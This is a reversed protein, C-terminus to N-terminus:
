QVRNNEIYNAKDSTCSFMCTAFLVDTAKAKKILDIANIGCYRIDVVAIKDFSQTLFPALANGFSDKFIVLNRGTGANTTIERICEDGGFTMYYSAPDTISSDLLVSDVPNNYTTDYQKVKVKDNNAPVYYVFNEPNDALRQDNGSFSYMTGLFNKKVVKKYTSLDAFDTFGANTTFQKAAYYAGLPMWHHDTRSYIDKDAQEDLVTFVNVDIVNKLNSQINLLNEYQSGYDNLYKTPLYYQFATPICMSYVNIKDGLQEKYKNIYQAYTKGKEFSGGYLEFCRVSSGSGTVMVGNEIEGDEAGHGVPLKTTGNDNTGTTEKKEKTTTPTVINGDSSDDTKSSSDGCGVLSFAMTLALLCALIKKTKGKM